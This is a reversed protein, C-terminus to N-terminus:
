HQYQHENELYSIGAISYEPSSGPFICKFSISLKPVSANINHVIQM